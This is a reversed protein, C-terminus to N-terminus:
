AYPLAFCGVVPAHHPAWLAVGIPYRIVEASPDRRAIAAAAADALAVAGSGAVGIGARAVPGGTVLHAAMAESAEVISSTCLLPEPGDAGSTSLVFRAVDPSEDFPGSAFVHLLRAAAQVTESVVGDLDAGCRVSTAAQWVCCGLGFGFAAGSGFTACDLLKVPVACGHAALRAAGLANCDARSSHVSLIEDCGRAALEEYAAAFQGSSPQAIAFESDDDDLMRRVLDDSLDVGELYDQDGVTITLPVVEVGLERAMEAPLRAGSDTCVGIM